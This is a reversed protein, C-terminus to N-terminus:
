IALVLIVKAIILSVKMNRMNSLIAFYYSFNAITDIGGRGELEM